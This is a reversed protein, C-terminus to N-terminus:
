DELAKAQKLYEILSDLDEKTTTWSTVFRIAINQDQKEWIEFDVVSSLFEYEKDTVIPFIQNTESKMLFPYKLESLADQLKQAMSNAHKAARYFSDNEFLGKFQIGLLWGKAMMAGNQKMCFRFFPKLSENCIVVAEGMLAGNKTGGIYFVDCWEALDNLTYDVGSMLATGLRAGDMYLYLDLEKCISVIEEIEQRSYVTGFETSNSIYVMKPYVLHEYTLMHEYFAKRILQPTLKGNVNPVTIVKHGTSEIAGTEHTAIHGTDCSIVAEFPRLVSSIVTKNTLTGGSIFHIDVDHDIMKSQILSKAQLCLDDEGYGVFSNLNTNNLLEMIEPICGQGYDNRFFLM